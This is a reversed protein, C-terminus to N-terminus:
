CNPAGVSSHMPRTSNPSTRSLRLHQSPENGRTLELELNAARGDRWLRRWAARLAGRSRPHLQKLWRRQGPVAGQELALRLSPRFNPHQAIGTTEFVLFEGSDVRKRVAQVDDTLPDAFCAQHLWVGVWAHGDKMLIVPRLGAQELCSSFLMALDLCTAVRAEMIRDPTRIKQGDVGFSAPPEAYHLSEAALTSYIASVQKWVVDRSKSQYGNMQLDAHQARLLKSAKGILVDVAPNNPM